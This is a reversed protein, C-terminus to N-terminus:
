QLSRSSKVRRVLTAVTAEEVVRTVTVRAHLSAGAQKAVADVFSPSVSSVSDGLSLYRVVRGSADTQDAPAAVAPADAAVFALVLAAAVFSRFSRGFVSRQVSDM